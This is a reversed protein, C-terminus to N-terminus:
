EGERVWVVIRARLRILAQGHIQCVRSHSIGLLLAIENLKKDEDYHLLMVTREREPLEAISQALTHKFNEEQLHSLPETSSESAIENAAKGFVDPDDASFIHATSTDQLICHYEDLSIGLTEAVESSRADRGQQNEIKRVAEAVERAKVRVSRPAWDTRRIEDLMAGRIRTGAFTEFSAGQDPDYNRSAELLGMMGVQMLDDLQVSPPLRTILHWAIRKILPAHRAVLEDQGFQQNASYMTLGNM